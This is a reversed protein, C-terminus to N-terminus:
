SLVELARNQVVFAAAELRSHVELKGLVNQIHTRSTQPSIVLHQAIRMNDAGEALLALVEKERRTLRAMRVLADSHERRRDMLRTLLDRLMRGPIMTDGNAVARIAEVLETLPCEKSLYGNAGAELGAMLIEPDDGDSLLLVGADPSEQKIEGAAELADQGSLASGIVSVHPRARRWQSVAEFGDKAEAVVRIDPERELVARVSERFLSHKDALLVSITGDTGM